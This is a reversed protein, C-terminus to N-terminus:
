GALDDRLVLRDAGPERRNGPAPVDPPRAVPLTPLPSDYPLLDTDRVRLGTSFGVDTGNRISYHGTQNQLPARGHAGVGRRSNGCYRM